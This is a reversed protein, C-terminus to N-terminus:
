PHATANTPPFALSSAHVALAPYRHLLQRCCRSGDVENRSRDKNVEILPTPVVEGLITRAAWVIRGFSAGM